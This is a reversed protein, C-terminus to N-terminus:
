FFKTVAPIFMIASSSHNLPVISLINKYGGGCEYSVINPSIIKLLNPTFINLEFPQDATLNKNQGPLCLVYYNGYYDKLRPDHYNKGLMRIHEIVTVGLFKYFRSSILTYLGNTKINIFGNILEVDKLLKDKCNHSFFSLFTKTNEFCKEPMSFSVKNNHIDNHLIDHEVDTNKYQIISNRDDCIRVAVM